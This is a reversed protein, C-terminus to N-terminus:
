HDKNTTTTPAEAIPFAWLTKGEATTVALPGRFLGYAAWDCGREPKSRDGNLDLAVRGICCQGLFSSAPKNSGLRDLADRWDQGTAVDGCNPCRFAWNMPDEGFRRRLEALFDDQTMTEIM